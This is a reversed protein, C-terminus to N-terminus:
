QPLCTQQSQLHNPGATLALLTQQESQVRVPAVLRLALQRQDIGAQLCPRCSDVSLLLDRM